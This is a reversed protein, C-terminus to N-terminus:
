AVSQGAAAEIIEYNTRRKRMQLPQVNHHKSTAKINEFQITEDFKSLQLAVSRTNKRLETRKQRM